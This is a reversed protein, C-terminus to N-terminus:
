RIPIGASILAQRLIDIKDKSLVNLSETWIQTGEAYGGHPLGGQMATGLVWMDNDKTWGERHYTNNSSWPKGDPVIRTSYDLANIDFYVEAEWGNATPRVDSRVLSKLLQETRVYVDPKFERYYDTLFLNIVYHIKETAREVAVQSCSLIHNKLAEISNFVM